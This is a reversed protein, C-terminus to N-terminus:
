VHIFKVTLMTIMNNISRIRENLLMKEAKRVIYIGKPTKVNSKLKIRFPTIDKNLM